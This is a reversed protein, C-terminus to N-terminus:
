PVARLRYFRAPGSPPEPDTLTMAAGTGPAPESQVPNWLIPLDLSVARELQYTKGLESVFSVAAIGGLIEFRSILMGYNLVLTVPDSSNGLADRARIELLNAGPSLTVGLSWNNSGTAPLWGGGNLRLEVLAVGSSLTFAGGGAPDRATGSIIVDPSNVIGPQPNTVTVSPANTDFYGSLELAFEGSDGYSGAGDVAIQYSTGATVGAMMACEGYPGTTFCNTIRKLNNVADGTYLAAMSNFTYRQPRVAIHLKGSYPATWTWWVSKTGYPYNPGGHFPEGTEKTASANYALVKSYGYQFFFPTNTVTM